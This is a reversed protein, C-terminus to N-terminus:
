AALLALLLYAAPASLLPSDVVDLVGGFAPVSRGSDKRGADRKLASECLDAGQGFAGMVVGFAAAWWWPMLGRGFVASAEGFRGGIVVGCVAALVLGGTLGEWTKGASLWPILKHRGLFTGTFYAGVDTAKVVVLFLVMAHMGFRIRIALIVASCVGLYCVALLSTAVRRLAADTRHRVLQEVFLLGVVAGIAALAIDGGGLAQRWFPLTGVAIACLPGARRSIPADAARALAALEVYAWAILAATLVALPLAPLTAAPWGAQETRWDLWLIVGVLVILVAGVIIRTRLQSMRLELCLRSPGRPPSPATPATDGEAPGWAL